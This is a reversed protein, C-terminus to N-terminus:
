LYDKGGSNTRKIFEAGALMPVYELRNNQISTSGFGYLEAAQKGNTLDRFLTADFFQGNELLLWCHVLQNDQSIGSKLQAKLIELDCEIYPTGNVIVDGFVLETSYGIKAFEESLISHVYLCAGNIQDYNLKPQLRDIVEFLKDFDSQILKRYELPKPSLKLDFSNKFAIDMRRAYVPHDIKIKDFM